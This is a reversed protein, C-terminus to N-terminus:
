NTQNKKSRRGKIIQETTKLQATEEVTKLGVATNTALRLIGTILPVVYMFYWDPINVLESVSSVAAMAATLVVFIITRFGKLNKM